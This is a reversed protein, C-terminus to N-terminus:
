RNRLIAELMAPLAALYVQKMKDSLKGLVEVMEINDLNEIEDAYEVSAALLDDRTVWVLPFYEGFITEAELSQALPPLTEPPPNTKRNRGRYEGIQVATKIVHSSLNQDLAELVAQVLSVTFGTAEIGEVGLWFAQAEARDVLKLYAALRSPDEHSM